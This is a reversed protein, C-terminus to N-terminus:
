PAPMPRGCPSGCAVRPLVRAGLVDWLRRHTGENFLHLDLEGLLLAVDVLNPRALGVPTVGTPGIAQAVNPTTRTRINDQSYGGSTTPPMAAWTSPRARAITREPCSTM